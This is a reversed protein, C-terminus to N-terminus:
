AGTCLYTGAEIRDPIAQYTLPKLHRVGSIRIHSAGAGEIESGAAVLFNCLDEVEPDQAANRIETVGDALVAAMVANETAGVSPYPMPISAATLRGKVSAFIYGHEERFSAGLAQLSKIHYDIPRSGISCGGPRSVVANGFRGLLPGLSLISTRLHKSVEYELKHPQTLRSSDIILDGDDFSASAGLAKLVDAMTTIDAIKPTKKLRVEGPILLAAAMLPLTANKSTSIEVTGHLPTGGRIVYFSENAM